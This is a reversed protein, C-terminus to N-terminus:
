SIKTAKNNTLTAVIGKAREYDIPTDIETWLMGETSLIELELENIIRDLADEYYKAYEKEEIMKELSTRFKNIDNGALRLIGIYEGSCSSNDLEKNIRIIEGDENLLVKMDEDVLAKCDDVVLFSKNSSKASKVANTLIKPDYVIDSNFILTDATIENRILYATYINNREIFLDNYIFKISDFQTEYKKVAELIKEQAHGTVITLDKIGNEFLSTLARDLLTKGPEIQLCIKPLENTLSGLRSSRGAAFIIGNM